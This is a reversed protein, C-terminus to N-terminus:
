IHHLWKELSKSMMFKYVFAKFENRNYIISSCFTLILILNRHCINRLANCEAIFIKLAGLKHLNLVKLAVNQGEDLIGKNVYGFGCSGILNSPSFGSTVEYLSRYSFKSLNEITSIGSSIDEKLKKQRGGVRPIDVSIIQEESQLISVDDLFRFTFTWTTPLVISNNVTIFDMNLSSTSQEQHRRVQDVKTPRDPKRKVTTWANKETTESVSPNSAILDRNQQASYDFTDGLDSSVNQVSIGVTIEQVSHDVDSDMAVIETMVVALTTINSGLVDIGITVAEKQQAVKDSPKVVPPVWRHVIHCRGVSHGIGALDVDMLVWAFHGFNGSLTANDIRLPVGIGRTLDFLVKIPVQMGQKLVPKGSNGIQAFSSGTAYDGSIEIVSEQNGLERADNKDMDYVLLECHVAVGKRSDGAIGPLLSDEAVVIVVACELLCCGRGRRFCWVNAVALNGFSAFQKASLERVEVMVASLALQTWSLSVFGVVEVVESIVLSSLARRNLLSSLGVGFFGLLRLDSNSYCSSGAFWSVLGKACCRSCSGVELGGVVWTENFVTDRADLGLLVRLLHTNM